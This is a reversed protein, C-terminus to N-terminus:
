YQLLATFKRWEIEIVKDDALFLQKLSGSLMGDLVRHSWDYNDLYDRRM